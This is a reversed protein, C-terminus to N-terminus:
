KAPRVLEASFSAEQHPDTIHFSAPKSNDAKVIIYSGPAIRTTSYDVSEGNDRTVVINKGEDLLVEGGVFTIRMKDWDTLDVNTNDAIHHKWIKVDCKVEEAYGSWAPCLSGSGENTATTICGTLIISRIHM